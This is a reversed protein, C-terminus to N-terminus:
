NYVGTVLATVAFSSSSIDPDSNGAMSGSLRLVPGFSWNEAVWFDHGFWFAGGIGNTPSRDDFSNETSVHAYGVTGGLHWGANPQFYADLFPGVTFLSVSRDQDLAGREFEVSASGEGLFALGIVVGPTVAAGLMVDFSLSPGSGKLDVGSLDGDDFTAGLWGFGISARAYFGEHM